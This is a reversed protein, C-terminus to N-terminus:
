KTRKRKIDVIFNKSNSVIRSAMTTGSFGGKQFAWQMSREVYFQNSFDNNRFDLYYNSFTIEKKGFPLGAKEVFYVDIFIIKNLHYKALIGCIEPYLKWAPLNKYTYMDYYANAKNSYFSNIQKTSLGYTRMASLFHYMAAREAIELTDLDFVKFSGTAYTSLAEVTQRYADSSGEPLGMFSSTMYDISLPIVYYNTDAASTTDNYLNNYANLVSLQSSINEKPSGSLLSKTYNVSNQQKKEQCSIFYDLAERNTIFELTDNNILSGPSLQEAAPENNFLLYAYQYQILKSFESPQIKKRSLNVKPLQDKPIMKSMVNYQGTIFYNDSEAPNETIFRRLGENLYFLYYEDGPNLLLQKYCSEVAEQLDLDSLQLRITEDAAQMKMKRFLLENVQFDKGAATAKKAEKEAKKLRLDTAPHTKYYPAPYKKKAIMAKREHVLTKKFFSAAGEINYGADQLISLSVADAEEEAERSEAYIGSIARQKVFDAGPYGISGAITAKSLHEKYTIYKKPSHNKVYHGFEHGLVAILEAETTTEALLGVNVYIIGTGNMYANIEPDRVIIVKVAENYKGRLMYTVLKELYATAEDWNDYMRGYSKLEEYNLGTAKVYSRLYTKDEFLTDYKKYLQDSMSEFGAKDFTYKANKYGLPEHPNNQSHLATFALM